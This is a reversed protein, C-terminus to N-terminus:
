HVAIGSDKPLFSAVLHSSVQTGANRGVQVAGALESRGILQEGSTRVASTLLNGKYM